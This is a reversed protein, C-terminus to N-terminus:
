PEVIEIHQECFQTGKKSHTSELKDTAQKMSNNTEKSLFCDRTIDTLALWAPSTYVACFVDILTQAVGTQIPPGTNISSIAKTTFACTEPGSSETLSGLLTRDCDPQMM